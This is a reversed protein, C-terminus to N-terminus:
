DVTEPILIVAYCVAHGHLSIVMFANFTFYGLAIRHYSELAKVVGGVALSDERLM